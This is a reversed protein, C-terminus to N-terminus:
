PCNAGNDDNDSDFDSDSDEKYGAMLTEQIHTNAATIATSDVVAEDEKIAGALLNKYGHGMEEVFKLLM